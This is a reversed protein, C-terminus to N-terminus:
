SGDDRHGGSTTQSHSTPCWAYSETGSEMSTSICVYAHAYVTFCPSLSALSFKLQLPKLLVKQYLVFVTTLFVSNHRFTEEEEELTKAEPGGPENTQDRREKCPTLTAYFCMLWCIVEKQERKYECPTPYILLLHAENLSQKPLSALPSGPGHSVLGRTVIHTCICM